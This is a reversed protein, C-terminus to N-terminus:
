RSARAGRGANWVSPRRDRDAVVREFLLREDLEAIQRDDDVHATEGAPPAGGGAPLVHRPGVSQRGLRRRRRRLAIRTRHPLGEDPYDAEDLKPANKIEKKTRNLFVTGRM